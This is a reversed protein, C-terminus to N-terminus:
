DEADPAPPAEAAKPLRRKGEASVRDVAELDVRPQDAEHWDRTLYDAMTLGAGIIGWVLGAAAVVRIIPVRYRLHMFFLVILLTKVSAIALAVALGMWDEPLHIEAALVTLVLLMVLAAFVIWYTAVSPHSKSM